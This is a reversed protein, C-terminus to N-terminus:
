SLSVDAEEQSVYNMALRLVEIATPLEALGFSSSSKWEDDGDRYRRQLKVSRITRASDGEGTENAFVSASVAGMRFVKEPKNSNSKTSM